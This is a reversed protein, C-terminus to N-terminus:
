AALSGGRPTSVVMGVLFGLSACFLVCAAYTWGVSYNLISLSGSGMAVHVFAALVLGLAAGGFVGRAGGRQLALSEDISGADVQSSMKVDGLKGYAAGLTLGYLAHLLLSCGISTATFAIGMAPFFIALSLVFPIAAFQLGKTWSHGSLRPEVFRAYAMALLVGIVMHVLLGVWVSHHGLATLSNQALASTFSGSSLGTYDRGAPDAHRAGMVTAFYGTYLAGLMLGSACFGSIISRSRWDARPTLEGM